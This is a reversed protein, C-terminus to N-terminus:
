ACLRRCAAVFERARELTTRAQSEEPEFPALYDCDNRLIFAEILYKHFRADVLGPKAMFEGFASIVARHSTREIGQHLLLATAAHFMAYYARGVTGRFFGGALLHESEKLFVEASEFHLQVDKKM